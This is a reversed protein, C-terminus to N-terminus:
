GRESDAVGPLSLYVSRVAMIRNIDAIVRSHFEARYTKDTLALGTFYLGCVGGLLASAVLLETSLTRPEGIFTLSILEDVPAGVWTEQVSVPVALMGLLVIFLTVMVAVFLSQVFQSVLMLVIVNLRELRQLPRLHAAPVSQAAMLGAAPTGALLERRDSSPGRQEIQRIEERAQTVVLVGGVVVLLVMIALLDVGGIEHSAQWLESAFLLFVVLILLMPLTRAVLMAIQPVNERLHRLSWIALELVGLSVVAYIIGVGILIFGPTFLRVEGITVFGPFAGPDGTILSAVIGPVLGIVAIDLLDLRSVSGFPPHKRIWLFGGILTGTLGLALLISGINSALPGDALQTWILVTGVVIWIGILPLARRDIRQESSYGEILQPVGRASFWREISRRAGDPVDDRSSATVSRAPYRPAQYRDRRTRVWRM